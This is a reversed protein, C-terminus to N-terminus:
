ELIRAQSIGHVSSGPPRYDMPTEFSHSIVLTVVILIYAFGLGTGKKEKKRKGHLAAPSTKTERGSLLGTGGTTSPCLELWQVALSDGRNTKKQLIRNGKQTPMSTFM